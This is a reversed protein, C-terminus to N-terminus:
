LMIDDEIWVGNCVHGIIMGDSMNSKIIDFFKGIDECRHADSGLSVKRGGCEEYLYLYNLDEQSFLEKNEDYDVDSFKYRFVSTNIELVIGKDIMISFIESLQNAVRDFRKFYKRPLDIHGLTDFDFDYVTRKVNELYKIIFDDYELISDPYRQNVDHHVSCMKYSFPFSCMHEFLKPNNQPESFEFGSLLVVDKYMERTKEIDFLYTEVVDDSNMLQEQNSDIHDTVCIGRLGMKKAQICIDLLSEKGDHSYKSHVHTDYM